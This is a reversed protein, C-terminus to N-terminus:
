FLPDDTIVQSSLLTTGDNYMEILIVPNDFEIKFEGRYDFYRYTFNTEVSLESSDNFITENLVTAFHENIAKAIIDKGPEHLVAENMMLALTSSDNENFPKVNSVPFSNTFTVNKYEALTEDPEGSIVGIQKTFDLPDSLM